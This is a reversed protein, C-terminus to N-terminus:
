LSSLEHARSRSDDHSHSVRDVLGLWIKGNRRIQQEELRRPVDMPVIDTEMEVEGLKEPRFQQFPFEKLLQVITPADPCQRILREIIDREGSPIGLADTLAWQVEISKLSMQHLRELAPKAKHLEAIAYPLRDFWDHESM